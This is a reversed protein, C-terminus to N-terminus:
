RVKTKMRQIEEEWINKVKKNSKFKQFQQYSFVKNDYLNKEDFVHGYDVCFDRYQELDDFIKAVEANTKFKVKSM